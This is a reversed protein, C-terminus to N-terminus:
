NYLDISCYIHQWNVVWIWTMMYKEFFRQYYKEFIYFNQFQLNSLHMQYEVKFYCLLLKPPLPFVNVGYIHNCFLQLVFVLCRVFFCWTNHSNLYSFIEGFVEIKRTCFVELNWNFLKLKVIMNKFVKKSMKIVRSVM